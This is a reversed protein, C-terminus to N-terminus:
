KKHLITKLKTEYVLLLLSRLWASKPGRALEMWPGDRESTVARWLQGGSQHNNFGRQDPVTTKNRRAAKMDLLQLVIELCVFAGM